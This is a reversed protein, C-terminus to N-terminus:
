RKKLEEAWVIPLWLAIQECLSGPTCWGKDSFTKMDAILVEKFFSEDKIKPLIELFVSKAQTLDKQHLWYSNALNVGWTLSNPSLRYAKLSSQQAASFDRLLLQYWGMSGWADAVASDNEPLTQIIILNHKIAEEYNKNKPFLKAIKGYSIALDQQFQINSPDQQSLTKDINLATHYYNVAADTNGLHLSLEGLKHYSVSLDRQFQTNSSDQQTLTKDIDLAAHYYNVAANTNGLHLSLEGLKLYSVSLDRQFQTNSPDQQALANAIHIAAQYHNSATDINGMHLSLEGLKLYSVSLDQQFQTNSPDQQILNKDISLSSRYHKDAAHTNDLRLSLDGLQNYSVSLDRQFQTNSPDQQTLAKAIDLAAHYHKAAAHTNGQRLSLEGLKHYSVSLDRQLQTNRLDQQSQTKDISLAARYYKGAAHTDGLRQSLNGLNNYSISLDRQFQINNPDQQVLTKAIDLAKHFHKGAAHTNGLRQSLNGLKNHSVSFDQQFETNSPDQQVLTKTIDLAARYHNTATNTNGKRLSLNGLKHYSVSFGQQFETNSPEQQVLTKTMDLAAHYYKDAAHTNGIRLSLDGLKHYSVSLGQQFETNSPTQQSLTKTINLAAHYHKGAADTDGLRLSLGGLKHYSVSLDQQFKTNSPAQIALQEFLNFGQQYLELAQQPDLQDNKLIQDAKQILATAQQRQEEASQDGHLQLAEVIADIRRMTELQKHQPVYDNLIDRLDFNMFNLNSRVQSLLSQARQKELDARQWQLYAFGAVLSTTITLVGMILVVKIFRKSAARAKDLQYIKDRQVLQELPVGLIGAILKLKATNSQQEYRNALREADAKNRGQKLLQQKYVNPNTIGKGGDLLRFDAAIPESIKGLDLDGSATIPYQLAKPFCELSRVDEPDEEKTDDISANPEGLLMAAMIRDKKGTRKFHLIEENVYHSQVARPSCLVILFHSHDLATTIASALNADAPLSVEDRFVPYIREPIIEGRQNETGILDAPIDYIELQRHLWTAWQQDEETNDAHRYSIFALYDIESTPQNVNSIQKM